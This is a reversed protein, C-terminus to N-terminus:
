TERSQVPEVWTVKIEKPEEEGIEKELQVLKLFDALTPKYEEKGLKEEMNTIVTQLVKVLRLKNRVEAWHECEGCSKPAKEQKKVKAM